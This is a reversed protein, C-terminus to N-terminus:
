PAVHEIDVEAEAGGARSRSRLVPSRTARYVIETGSEAYSSLPTETPWRIAGYALETCRM